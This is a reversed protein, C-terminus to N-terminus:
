KGGSSSQQSAVLGRAIFEPVGQEMLRAVAMQGATSSLVEPVLLGAAGGAVAGPIGGKEYGAYGGALASAGAGTHAAVRHAMRQATSAGLSIRKAQQNAPILSSIRQNIERNGPVIRDLENDIAGYLRQQVNKVDDFRQWEPPWTKIEKGIGRKMELLEDPTYSAPVPGVSGSPRLDLLDHLGGLKDAMSRANRPLKAIADDLVAHASQTSGAAGSTTAQHVGDEMQSTLDALRERTQKALTSSRLGTTEDLVAEGIDKGRGRMRDSIHLATEAAKPALATAAEGLGAGAAGIAASQGVPQDHVAANSGTNAAEAAIRLAPATLKSTGILKEIFPLKEALTTAGERLPGGTAAMELAQELGGGVREQTNQPALEAPKKWPLVTGNGTVASAANTLTALAPYVTQLGSKAAGALIPNKSDSPNIHGPTRLSSLADLGSEEPANSILPANMSGPTGMFAPPKVTPPAIETQPQKGTIHQVYGLQDERSMKAFDQDQSSLYGLQDEPSMGLFDKDQSLQNPDVSM